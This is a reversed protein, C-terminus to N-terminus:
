GLMWLVLLAALGVRYAVFLFLSNRRVYALLFHIAALGALFSATVGVALVGADPRLGVVEGTALRRIEFLAAGATVPMAMLFSFRAASARDLGLFLGASISVGSRSIGPILAAAQAVGIGFAGPVTLDAIGRDRSGWRDALWLIAAGVLLMLTVLGVSRVEREIIDNFLVGVLGAPIVTVALLVLLRRDADGAISRERVLAVGASALRLWDARFYILLALLTGVHLMVAFPLSGIFPDQWGLVAPVIILHGSSSIPLFETVGQVIGLVLAQFLLDV